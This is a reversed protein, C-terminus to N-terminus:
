RGAEDLLGSERRRREVRQQLEKKAKHDPTRYTRARGADQSTWAATGIAISRVGEVLMRVGNPLLLEQRTRLVHDMADGPPSSDLPFVEQLLIRGADLDATV